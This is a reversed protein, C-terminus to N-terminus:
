LGGEKFLTTQYKEVQNGWVDWGERPSRAFLELRPPPSVREIHNTIQEPKRSHAGKPCYFLVTGVGHDEPMMAPGRVGFLCLEHQGRLYQGIGLGTKVWVINNIYRFGLEKIVSLGDELFNNTVWLWLHCSEAPDWKDSQRMTTIIEPTKLLSFRANAGCDRGGSENWPPDAMITKYGDTM